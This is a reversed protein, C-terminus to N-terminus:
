PDHALADTAIEHVNVILRELVLGSIV